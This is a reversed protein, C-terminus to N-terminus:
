KITTTHLHSAFPGIKIPLHLKRMVNQANMKVRRRKSINIKAFCRSHGTYIPYHGPSCNSQCFSRTLTINSTLWQATAQSRRDRYKGYRAVKVVGGQIWQHHM